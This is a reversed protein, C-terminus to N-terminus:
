PQGAKKVDQQAQEFDEHRGVDLWYGLIPYTAVPRGAALLRQLLDTMDFREGSPIYDLVSPELLYIGANVLVDVCPKERVGMLRAGDCEVVGYPVSVQHRRVCVTADAGEKRHHRALDRFDVSALIDGNIVLLPERSDRVLALGGATGLPQDETVYEIEVGYARGDGFHDTIKEPLYHTTVNVHRIGANRLQEITRELLPRDGVCLMPKPTDETLPRLRTGFGGAMVVAAVSLEEETMLDRRLLLDVVKGTQPDVLPLQNVDAENMRRLAEVASVDPPAVTPTLSAISDCTRDFPIGRLMARRIDGDTLVGALRGDEGCILLVGTGADDLHRIARSIPEGPVILTRKLREARENANM